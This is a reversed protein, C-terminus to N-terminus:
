LTDVYGTCGSGIEVVSKVEQGVVCVGTDFISKVWRENFCCGEM